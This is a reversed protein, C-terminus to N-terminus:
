LWVVRLFPDIFGFTAVLLLPKGVVEQSIDGILLSNFVHQWTQIPDLECKSKWKLIFNCGDFIYIYIYLYINYIYIEDLIIVGAEEM